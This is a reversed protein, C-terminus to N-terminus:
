NSFMENEKKKQLIEITNIKYLIRFYQYFAFKLM